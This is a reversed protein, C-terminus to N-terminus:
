RITPIGLCSQGANFRQFAINSVRTCLADEINLATCYTEIVVRSDTSESVPLEAVQLRDVRGRDMEGWTQIERRLLVM